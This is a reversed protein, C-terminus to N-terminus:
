ISTIANVTNRNSFSIYRTHTHQLFSAGAGIVLDYSKSITGSPAEFSVSGNKDCRLLRHEFYVNISSGHTRMLELLLDNIRQRSISWRLCILYMRIFSCFM